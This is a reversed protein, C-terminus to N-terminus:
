ELVHFIKETDISRKLFALQRMYNLMSLSFFKGKHTFKALPEGYLDESVGSLCPVKSPIDAALFLRYDDKTKLSGTCVKRFATDIDLKVEQLAACISEFIEPQLLYLDQAYHDVYCSIASQHSKFTDIGKVELDEIIAQSSDSWSQTPHFLSSTNKMEGIIINLESLSTVPFNVTEGKEVNEGAM